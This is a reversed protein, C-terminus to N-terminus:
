PVGKVSSPREVEQWDEGDEVPGTDAELVLGRREAWRERWTEIIKILCFVIIEGVLIGIIYAALLRGQLTPDLFTYAPLLVSFNTLLFAPRVRCFFFRVIFAKPLM